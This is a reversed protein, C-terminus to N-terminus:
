YVGYGDCLRDIEKLIRNSEAETIIGMDVLNCILDVLKGYAKIGGNANLTGDANFIKKYGFKQLITEIDM